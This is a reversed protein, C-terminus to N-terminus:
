IIQILENFSAKDEAEHLHKLLYNKLQKHTKIEKMEYLYDGYPELTNIDVKNDTTIDISFGHQGICYCTGGPFDGYDFSDDTEYFIYDYKM